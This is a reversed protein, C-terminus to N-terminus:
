ISRKPPERLHLTAFHPPTYIIETLVNSKITNKEYIFINVLQAYNNNISDRLM